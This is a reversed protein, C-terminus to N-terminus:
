LLSSPRSLLLKVVPESKTVITTTDNRPFTERFTLKPFYLSRAINGNEHRGVVCLFFIYLIIIYYYEPVCLHCFSEPALVRRSRIIIYYRYRNNNYRPSEKQGLQSHGMITYVIKNDILCHCYLLSNYQLLINNNSYSKSHIHQM